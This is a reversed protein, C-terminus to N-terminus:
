HLRRANRAREVMMLLFRWPRDCQALVLTGVAAAAPDDPEGAGVRVDYKTRVFKGFQDLTGTGVDLPALLPPERRCQM